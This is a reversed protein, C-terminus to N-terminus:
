QQNTLLSSTEVKTYTYIVLGYEGGASITLTKGNDTIQYSYYTDSTTSSDIFQIYKESM